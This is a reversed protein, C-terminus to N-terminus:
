LLDAITFGKDAMVGDGDELLGLIGCRKVIERNSIFGTYLKSIFSVVGSPTICVLGKLTTASKSFTHKANCFNWLAWVM